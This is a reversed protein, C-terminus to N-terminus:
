AQSAKGEISTLSPIGRPLSVTFRAGKGEQSEVTVQGDHAEVLSKVIALGLGTGGKGSHAQSFRDFVLPLFAAPIGIGTDEVEIRIETDTHRLRVTVSGGPPTFRLSNGVLNVVVQVVRDEDGLMRVSESDSEVRLAIGRQEARPRLEEIAHRVAAEPVFWGREVPLMGTNARSLDLVENVLRLLRETGKQFIELLRQQKDTLPGSTKAGILRAAERMANLPSRLEHSVTAYFKEKMEDIERLRAAMNNFSMALAGIEDRTDIKLPEHFAGEAVAKTADSLRALARNMRYAIVATGALATLVAVIMATTVAKWTRSRLAEIEIRAKGLADKAETQTKDLTTRAIQILRDLDEVVRDIVPEADERMMKEARMANGSKRLERAETVSAYYARFDTAAHRLLTEEEETSLIGVLREFEQAILRAVSISIDTYAQDAFVLSRMDVRKATSLAERLSVARLLAEPATLTIPQDAINLKGIENLSWAAIGALVLIVLSFALFIKAALRM